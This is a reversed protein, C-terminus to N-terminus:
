FVYSTSLMSNQRCFNLSVHLEFSVIVVSWLFCTQIEVLLSLMKFTETGQVQGVAEGDISEM